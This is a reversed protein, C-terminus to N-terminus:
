PGSPCAALGISDRRVAAAAVFIGAVSLQGWLEAAGLYGSSPLDLADPLAGVCLTLLGLALSASLLLLDRLSRSEMFQARLLWAAGLAFLTLMTEVAARLTPAAIAASSPRALAGVGGIRRGRPDTARPGEVSRCPRLRDSRGSADCGGDAARGPGAGVTLCGARSDLRQGAGRSRLENQGLM